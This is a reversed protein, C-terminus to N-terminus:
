ETTLAYIGDEYGLLNKAFAADSADAAGYSAAAGNYLQLVAQATEDASLKELAALLAAAFEDGGVIADATSVSVTEGGVTCGYIETWLAEDPAEGHLVVLDAASFVEDASVYETLHPISGATMGNANVDMMSDLFRRAVDDDVPVAFVPDSGNGMWFSGLLTGWAHLASTKEAEAAFDARLARNQDSIPFYLGVREAGGVPAELVSVLRLEDSHELYTELPVFGVQVSGRALAVATAEDSTGFTVNVRGVTVGEDALAGILLPPLEKKLQMLADTDREGAVFEVNLEALTIGEEPPPTPENPKDPTPERKGCGSLVALLALALFLSFTRKM